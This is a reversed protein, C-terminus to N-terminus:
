LHCRIGWLTFKFFAFAIQSIIKLTVDNISNIPKILRGKFNMDPTPLPSSLTIKIYM